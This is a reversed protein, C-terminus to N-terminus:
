DNFFTNYLHRKWVEIIVAQYEKTSNKYAEIAEKKSSGFFWQYAEIFQERM